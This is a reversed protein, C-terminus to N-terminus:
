GVQLRLLWHPQTTYGNAEPEKSWIYQISSSLLASPGRAADVLGMSIHALWDELPDTHENPLLETSSMDVMSEVWDEPISITYLTDTSSIIHPTNTM